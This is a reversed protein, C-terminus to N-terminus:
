KDKMKERIEDRMIEVPQFHPLAHSEDSHIM